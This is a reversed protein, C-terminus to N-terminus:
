LLNAKEIQDIVSLKFSMSYDRQSRKKMEERNKGM